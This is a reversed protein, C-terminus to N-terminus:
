GEKWDQIRAQILARAAEDLELYLARRPDAPDDLQAGAVLAEVLLDAETGLTDGRVIYLREEDIDLVAQEKLTDFAPSHTATALEPHQQVFREAESM